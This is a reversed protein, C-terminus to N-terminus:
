VNREMPSEGMSPPASPPPALPGHGRGVRSQCALIHHEIKHANSSIISFYRGSDSLSLSIPSKPQKLCLFVNPPRSSIANNRFLHWRDYFCPFPLFSPNTSKEGWPCNAGHVNRGMSAPSVDICTEGLTWPSPVFRRHVKRGVDM